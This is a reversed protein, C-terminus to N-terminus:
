IKKHTTQDAVFQIFKEVAPTLQVNKRWALLHGTTKTPSFPVFALREDHYKQYVGYIGFHYYKGSLVLQKANEPLNIIVRWDLKNLDIKLTDTIDDRVINRRGVVLPLQYLDHAMIAKRKALPDDKRMILGWKEQVPLPFYNYKAAEIPQIHAM